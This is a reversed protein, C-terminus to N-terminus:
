DEGFMKEGPALDILEQSLSLWSSSKRESFFELPYKGTDHDEPLDAEFCESDFDSLFNHEVTRVNEDSSRKVYIPQM